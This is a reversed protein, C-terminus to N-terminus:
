GSIELAGLYDRLAVEAERVARTSAKLNERLTALDTEQSQMQRLYNRQLESNAPVARLNERVRAQDRTISEIRSEAESVAEQRREVEARLAAARRLADRLPASLEGGAALALLRDPAEDLLLIAESIPRELVVRFTETGGAAM